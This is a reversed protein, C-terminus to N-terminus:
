PIGSSRRWRTAEPRSTPSRASGILLGLGDRAPDGAYFRVEFPTAAGDGLNRVLAELTAAAGEILSAPTSTIDASAVSLNPLTSATVDVSTALINDDESTESLVNDPDVRLELPVTGSRNAVWSLRVIESAGPDLPVNLTSALRFPGGTSVEYFLAVAVSSLPRTGTNAVTVDVTLTETPDITTESLVISGPVLAVDVVDMLDRLDAAALNNTDDREVAPSADVRLYYTRTGGTTVTFGFAIDVGTDGGVAITDSTVAVGGLDPHGQFLEVLVSPVPDLGTNAIRATATVDQPLRELENPTLAFGQIELDPQAPPPPRVDVITSAENDTEIRERVDTDDPDVVAYLTHAGLEGTTDWVFAVDVSGGPGLAPVAAECLEIGLRPVERFFRVHTAGAPASGTNAIRVTLTTATAVIPSPPDASLLTIVLNPLPPLVDVDRMAVNDERSVESVVGAFDAIAFLTHPGELGTTDWLFTLVRTSGGALEDIIQPAGIALGGAEPDGDFLQMDFSRATVRARNRVTVEVTVTEGVEPPDPDLFIDAAEINLNAVTSPVLAQLVSATEFVSGNWSGDASQTQELYGIAGDMATPPASGNLFAELVRATAYPASPGDGFGGDLQQREVFWALAKQVAVRHRGTLALALAAESTTMVDGPQGAISSWSGDAFQMSALVDALEIGTDTDLLATLALATDLPDSRYGPFIGFGGDPNSFSALRELPLDAGAALARALYDVSTPNQLSMWTRADDVPTGRIGLTALAVVVSSTDRLATLPHAEFRGDPQQQSLLWSIALSPDPLAGPTVPAVTQLDPDVLARGRTLGFFTDMFNSRILEVAELDRATPLLSEATLFVFAVAFDKQSLDHSPSWAGEVAIIQGVTVTEVDSAEIEAGLEPLRTPDVDPNM